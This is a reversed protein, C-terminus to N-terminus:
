KKFDMPMEEGTWIIASRRRKKKFFLRNTECPKNSSSMVQVKRHNIGNDEISAM